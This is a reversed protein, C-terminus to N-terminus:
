NTLGKVVKAFFDRQRRLNAGYEDPPLYNSEAGMKDFKEDLYPKDNEFVKKAAASLAEVVDKPTGKPGVLGYIMPTDVKYGQEAITPTNPLAKIRKPNFVGLARLTGARFHSLGTVIDQTAMDVHGGLLATIVTAGGQAPVHNLKIGAEQSFAEVLLHQIALTGPSTISFKGPNKKAEEVFEKLNKWRSNSQVWLVPYSETLNCIPTFSELTYAVTKQTEPLVVMASQSSGLITYGDPKATTVYTAGIAGAAGPKYIFTMTQRLYESMKDTFPRLQVDTGGPAFAVVIQIPKVPYEVVAAFSREALGLLSGLTAIGVCVLRITKMMWEGKM